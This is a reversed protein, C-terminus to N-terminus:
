VADGGMAGENSHRLMLENIKKDSEIRNDMCFWFTIFASLIEFAFEFFHAMQEGADSPEWGEEEESGHAPLIGTYARADYPHMAIADHNYSANYWGCVTEDPEPDSEPLCNYIIIQTIAVVSGIAILVVNVKIQSTDSKGM